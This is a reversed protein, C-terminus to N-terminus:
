PTPISPLRQALSLFVSELTAPQASFESLGIRETRAWELAALADRQLDRHM